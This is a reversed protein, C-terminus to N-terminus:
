ADDSAKSTWVGTCAGRAPDGKPIQACVADLEARVRKMVDRHADGKNWVVLKQAMRELSRRNRDYFTDPAPELEHIVARAAQEIRPADQPALEILTRVYGAGWQLRTAPGSAADYAKGAWAIAAAKDGRKKANSALGLMLYYPTASRALEATLLADSEDLLGAERLVYGANSVATERAYANPAERVSREAEKRVDALLADPLKGDSRALRALEIRAAVPYVRDIPGIKPDDTSRRMAKDWADILASREPSGPLTIGGTIDGAANALLDFNARVAEPDALVSAVYERSAKDDVPKHDKVTVAAIIAKLRLRMAAATEELPCADALRRLTNPVDQKPVLAQEDTDWSYYALMRWDDAALKAGNKGLADTLASKVPRARNMGLDLVHMYADPDVEGPLRTIETGDPSFLIMTPYGGVKFRAGQRQASKSDGDLYVPVFFRSREIFDGRNFITAKVQNCPPCWVAGWYLFVPKGSSRAKAFAEDVDGKEWAISAAQTDAQTTKAAPQAPTSAASPAAETTAAKPRADDPAKSCAALLLALVIITPRSM